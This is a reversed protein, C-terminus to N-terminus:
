KKSVAPAAEPAVNKNALISLFCNYGIQVTNIYLLRQSNPIFRFNIAHAIPWVTWSGKVSAMLDKQIRTKIGELDQGEMLGLWGFFMTGFIPNWILQDIAVKSAVTAASTGPMKGDLFGYFYHGTPGHVLFGFSALKLLRKLDITDKKDIFKQALLDGASFGVFSTLAKTLLPQDKLLQNYGKWLVVLPNDGGKNGDGSGGGGGGGGGGTGEGDGGGGIIIGGGHGTEPRRRLIDQYMPSAGDFMPDIKGTTAGTMMSMSPGRVTVFPFSLPLPSLYSPIPNGRRKTRARRAERLKDYPTVVHGPRGVENEVMAGACFVDLPAVTAGKDRM